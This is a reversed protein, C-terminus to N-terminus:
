FTDGPLFRTVDTIPSTRGRGNLQALLGEAVREGALAPDFAIRALRQSWCPEDGVNCLAVLRVQEPMRVDCAQFAPLAGTLVHDDLFLFVDPLYKERRSLRRSFHAYAGRRISTFFADERNDFSTQTVTVTFGRDRLMKDIGFYHPHFDVLEIKRVGRDKCADAFAGYAETDDLAIAKFQPYQWANPSATFVPVDAMELFRVLAPSVVYTFLFDYHKFMRARLSGLDHTREEKLKAIKVCDTLYGAKELRRQLSTASTCMSYSNNDFIVLAHGKWVPVGADKAVYGIGNHPSLWGEAVLRAYASRIVKLSVGLGREMESLSPLRSGVPFRGTAIAQRCGDAVQRSLPVSRTRDVSFPIGVASDSVSM